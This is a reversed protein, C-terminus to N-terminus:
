NTGVKVEEKLLTQVIKIQEEKEEIQKMLDKIAPSFKALREREIEQNRKKKAWELLELTSPDLEVTTHNGTMMIWNNGDYVELNHNNGNYRVMGASPMGMNVYPGSSVGNSVIIGPGSNITKIM